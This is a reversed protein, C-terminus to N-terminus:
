GLAFDDHRRIRDCRLRGEGCVLVLMWPRFSELITNKLKVVFLSELSVGGIDCDWNMILELCVNVSLRFIVGPRWVSHLVGVRTCEAIPM